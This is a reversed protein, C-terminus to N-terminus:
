NHAASKQEAAESSGGLVAQSLRNIVISGGWGGLFAAISVVITNAPLPVPLAPQTLLLMLLMGAAAGVACRVVMKQKQQAMQSQLLAAGLSIFISLVFWTAPFGVSLSAAASTPNSPDGTLTVTQILDGEVNQFIVAASGFVSPTFVYTGRHDKVVNFSGNGKTLHLPAVSDPLLQDSDPIPVKAGDMLTVGVTVSHGLIVGSPELRLFAYRPPVFRIACSSGAALRFMSEDGAKLLGNINLPGTTHSTIRVPEALETQGAPIKVTGNWDSHGYPFYLVAEKPAPSDLTVTLLASDKGNALVEGANECSLSLGIRSASQVRHILGLDYAVPQIWAPRPTAEGNAAMSVSAAGSLLGQATAVVSINGTVPRGEPRLSVRVADHPQDPESRGPPITINGANYLVGSRGTVKLTVQYARGANCARGTDDQTRVQIVLAGDRRFTRLNQIKVGLRVPQCAVAAHLGIGCSMLMLIKPSVM